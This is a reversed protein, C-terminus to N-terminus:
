FTGDRLNGQFRHTLHFNSKYRPLRLTTPLNILTFDPEAPQPVTDEDFASAAPTQARVPQVSAFPFVACVLLVLIRRSLRSMHHSAHAISLGGPFAQIEM